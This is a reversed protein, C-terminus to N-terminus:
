PSDVRGADRTAAFDRTAITKVKPFNGAGIKKYRIESYRGDNSLLDNKIEGRLSVRRVPAGGLYDFCVALM